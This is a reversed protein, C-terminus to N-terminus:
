GLPSHGAGLRTACRGGFSRAAERLLRAVQPQGADRLHAVAVGPTLTQDVRENTAVMAEAHSAIAACPEAAEAGCMALELAKYSLFKRHSAPLPAQALVALAASLDM